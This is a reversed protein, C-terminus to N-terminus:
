KEYMYDACENFHTIEVSSIYGAGHTQAPRAVDEVRQCIYGPTNSNSINYGTTRFANQSAHLGSIANSLLGSMIHVQTIFEQTCQSGFLPKTLLSEPRVPHTNLLRRSGM